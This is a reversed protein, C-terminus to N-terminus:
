RLYNLLSVESLQAVVQASAQVAIQALQMEAVAKLPDVDTKSSVLTELSLKQAEHSETAREVQKALIGNRATADLATKSAAELRTLQDTLFTKQAETLKGSLPGTAPDDSYAQIDRFIQFMHNQTLGDAETFTFSDALFGTEISTNEAIRSAAKIQDNQLTAAVNPAATLQALSSVNVPARDTNAGSFLYGGQHRYNLGNLMTQFQGELDKMLAVSSDAALANNIAERAGALGDVVQNLALDQADLRASVAAGTDLFGQVRAEAGKLATLTESGRGFGAMDTANKRTQVKEGADDQIRKAQLLNLLASQYNAGTSVRSM